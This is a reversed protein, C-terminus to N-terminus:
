MFSGIAAKSSSINANLTADEAAEAMVRSFSARASGTSNVIGQESRAIMRSLAM